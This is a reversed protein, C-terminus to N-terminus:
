PYNVKIFQKNRIVIRNKCAECTVGPKTSLALVESGCYPCAGRIQFFASLPGSLIAVAGFFLLPLGIIAGIGTFCLAVGLIILLLGGVLGGITGRLFKLM